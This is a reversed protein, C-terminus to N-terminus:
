ARLYRTELNDRRWLVADMFYHHLNVVSFIAAFYPTAGLSSFRAAREDILAADLASPLLHFLVVGLL